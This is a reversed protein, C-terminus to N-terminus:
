KGARWVKNVVCYSLGNIGCLLYNLADAKSFVILNGDKTLVAERVASYGDSQFDRAQFSCDIDCPLGLRLDIPLSVYQEQALSDCEERLKGSDVHDLRFVRDRLDVSTGSPVLMLESTLQDLTISGERVSSVLLSKGEQPLDADDIVGFRSLLQRQKKTLPTDQYLSRDHVHSSPSYGALLSGDEGEAPADAEDLTFIDEIDIGAASLPSGLLAEFLKRKNFDIENDRFQRSLNELTEVSKALIEQRDNDELLSNSITGYSWDAPTVDFGRSRLYVLDIDKILRFTSFVLTKCTKAFRQDWLVAPTDGLSSPVESSFGIMSPQVRLAAFLRNYQADLDALAQVELNGGVNEVSIGQTATKPVIVEFEQGVGKSAMGAPSYDVRRVKKFLNRYYNLVRIASKSYVSSGVDVSIIRYYNSQDMRSLLLADEIINVNRWPRAATSLYSPAVVFENQIEQSGAMIVQNPRTIGGFNKFYQLQGFSYEFPFRYEGEVMFGILTGSVIIPVIQTFDPIPRVGILEKEDSFIHEFALNGWLLLNYGVDLALQQFNNDVHFADLERKIYPYSTKVWFVDQEHNMQFATEMVISLCSNIISDQLMDPVSRLQSYVTGIHTSIDYNSQLGVSDVLDFLDQQGKTTLFDRIRKGFPVAAKNRIAM